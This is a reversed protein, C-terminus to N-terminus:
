DYRSFPYSLDHESEHREAVNKSQTDCKQPCIESPMHCYNSDSISYETLDKSLVDEKNQHIPCKRNDKNGTISLQRTKNYFVRRTSSTM